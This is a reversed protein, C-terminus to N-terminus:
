IFYEPFTEELAQQVQKATFEKDQIKFVNEYSISYDNQSEPPSVKVQARFIDNMNYVDKQQEIEFLERKLLEIGLQKAIEEKIINEDVPTNNTLIVEATVTQLETRKPKQAWGKSGQLSDSYYGVDKTTTEYPNGFVNDFLGM